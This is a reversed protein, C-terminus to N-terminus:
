FSPRSQWTWPDGQPPSMGLHHLILFSKVPPCSSASLGAHSLAGDSFWGLGLLGQAKGETVLRKCNKHGRRWLRNKMGKIKKDSGKSVELTLLSSVVNQCVFIGSAPPLCIPMSLVAGHVRQPNIIFVIQHHFRLANEKWHSLTLQKRRFYFHASYLISCGENRGVRSAAIVSRTPM